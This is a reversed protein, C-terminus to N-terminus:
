ILMSLIGAALMTAQAGYLAVVSSQVSGPPPSKQRGLKMLRSLITTKKQPLRIADFPDSHKRNVQPRLSSPTAVQSKRGEDEM